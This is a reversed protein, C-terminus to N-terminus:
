KKGTSKELLSDIKKLEEESSYKKIASIAANMENTTFTLNEQKAKKIMPLAFSMISKQNKGQGEKYLQELFHLKRADIDKVLDDNMWQPRELKEQEM